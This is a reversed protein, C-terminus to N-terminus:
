AELEPSQKPQLGQQKRAKQHRPKLRGLDAAQGSGAQAKGEQFAERLSHIKGYHQRRITEASMRASVGQLLMFSKYIKDHRGM